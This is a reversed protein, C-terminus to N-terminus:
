EADLAAWPRLPFSRTPWSPAAVEPNRWRSSMKSYGPLERLTAVGRLAREIEAAGVRGARLIRPEDSVLDVIMSPKAYRARGADLVFPLPDGLQEVVEDASRGGARGSQNAGTGTLPCNAGRGLARMLAFRPLRVAVTGAGTTV